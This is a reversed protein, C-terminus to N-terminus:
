QVSEWENPGDAAETMAQGNDLVLVIKRTTPDFEIRAVKGGASRASEYLRKLDTRRFSAPGKSM